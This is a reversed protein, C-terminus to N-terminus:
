LPRATNRFGKNWCGALAVITGMDEMGWIQKQLEQLRGIKMLRKIIADTAKLAEEWNSNAPAFKEEVSERYDYSCQINLQGDIQVLQMDDYMHMYAQYAIYSKHNAHDSLKQLIQQLM